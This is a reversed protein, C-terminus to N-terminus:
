FVTLFAKFPQFSECYGKSGSISGLEEFETHEDYFLAFVFLATIMNRIALTVPQFDFFFNIVELNIFKM